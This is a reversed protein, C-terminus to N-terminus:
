PLRMHDIVSVIVTNIFGAGMWDDPLLCIPCLPVSEEVLDLCDCVNRDGCEKVVSKTFVLKFHENATERHGDRCLAHIRNSAIVPNEEFFLFAIVIFIGGFFLSQGNM